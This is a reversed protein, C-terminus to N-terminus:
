GLLSEALAFGLGVVCGIVGGLVEIFRLETRALELVMGELRDLESAEVKAQVVAQIDFRQEFEGVAGEVFDPLRKMVEHTAAAAVREVLGESVVAQLLRPGNWLKERLYERLREKLREGLATQYAPDQVVAKIDDHSIFEREVAEAVRAALQGRRRPILGQITFGFLRLPRRPRFLMRIALRNTFWGIAGGVVPMTIWPLWM